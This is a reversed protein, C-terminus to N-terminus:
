GNKERIATVTMTQNHLECFGTGTFPAIEGYSYFGAMNEPLLTNYVVELEEELLQKLVLKRGVCSVTLVVEPPENLLELTRKAALEAGNILRDVNAKMLKVFSGEPIEGAFILSQREENVSLITRVVPPDKENRRMSLPFLLGAAPLEQALDGLYNKYLELAPQNDIEFLESGESRTVKREIGFTTWGGESGASIEWNNGEFALGSLVNSRLQGSSDIVWTSGFRDGDGALGGSVTVNTHLASKMGETLESGNVDLGESLIWIHQLNKGKWQECLKQGAERSTSLTIDVFGPLISGKESRLALLTQGSDSLEMGIHEGATSCGLLFSNPFERKISSAEQQAEEWNLSSFFIFGDPEFTLKGKFDSVTTYSSAFSKM